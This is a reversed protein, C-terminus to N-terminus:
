NAQVFTDHGPTIRVQQRHVNQIAQHHGKFAVQQPVFSVGSIGFLVNRPEVPKSVVNMPGKRRNEMEYSSM